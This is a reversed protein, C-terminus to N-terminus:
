RNFYNSTFDISYKRNTIEALNEHTKKTNIELEPAYMRPRVQYATM